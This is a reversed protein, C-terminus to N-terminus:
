KLLVPHGAVPPENLIVATDLGAKPHALASAALDYVLGWEVGEAGQAFFLSSDKCGKAMSEITDGTMTLDPGGMGRDRKRATGGSLRWIATARNELIMGVLSCPAPKEVRNQPLVKIQKPYDSRTETQLSVSSPGLKGLEALYATVWATKAQRHISVTIDKGAVYDKADSLDSVLQTQGEPNPKGDPKFLVARSFGVKPSIEDIALEPARKPPPPAPPEATAASASATAAAGTKKKEDCGALTASLCVTTLCLASVFGGGRFERGRYNKGRCM